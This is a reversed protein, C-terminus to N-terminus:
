PPEGPLPVYGLAVLQRVLSARTEDPSLDAEVVEARDPRFLVATYRATCVSAANRIVNQLATHETRSLPAPAPTSPAFGGM